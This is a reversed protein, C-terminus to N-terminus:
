IFLFDTLFVSVNEETCNRVLIFFIVKIEACKM